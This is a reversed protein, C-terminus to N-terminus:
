AWREDLKLKARRSVPYNASCSELVKAVAERAASEIKSIQLSLASHWCLHVARFGDKAANLLLADWRMTPTLERSPCAVQMLHAVSEILAHWDFLSTASAPPADGLVHRHFGSGLILAPKLQLRSM